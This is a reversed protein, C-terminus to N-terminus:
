VVVLVGIVIVESVDLNVAVVVSVVSGVLYLSVLVLGAKTSVVKIVSCEVMSVLRVVLVLVMEVVGLGEVKCKVSDTVVTLAKVVVLELVGPVLGSTIESNVETLGTGM